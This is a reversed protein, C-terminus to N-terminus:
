GAQGYPLDLPRPLEPARFATVAAIHAGNLTLVDVALPVDDGASPDIVSVALAPQANAWTPVYRLRSPVGHPM